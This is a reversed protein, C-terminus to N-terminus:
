LVLWWSTILSQMQEQCDPYKEEWEQMEVLPIHSLIDNSLGTSPIHVNISGKSPAGPQFFQFVWM